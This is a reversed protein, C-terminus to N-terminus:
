LPQASASFVAVTVLLGGLLVVASAVFWTVTKRYETASNDELRLSRFLAVIQLAVAVGITITAAVSRATWEGPAEFTWFKFFALSFGLLVTIATIIGQRYGEPLSVRSPEPSPTGGTNAESV